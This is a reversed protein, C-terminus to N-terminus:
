EEYRGGLHTALFKEARAYFDLRNEPRAFGHGEDEYEVYEVIKGKKKLSEVIQLSEAKKVRPDNAGQAILLPKEIREAHYLPSRSKLFESEKEPHGVRAYMIPVWPKWYPPITSLLTVLNSPGVLNVGCAFLDPTFALGALTAYGGYSGGFIAVRKADAVGKKVAWQVADTLDNQMKAGWERDGANIFSKGYGTSGRFNVQLVAYGRNALWQVEGSYGWVDRAWPGGHVLLVMPLKEAKVGPPTTLYGHIRLGDRAEYRIPEMQALKVGELARRSTFLFRAKKGAREYAYYYAPGDDALFVVLWTRDERDRNIIRFDGRHIKRLAEFDQAITPDLIKWELREKQFAVAQVVHRAPHVLVQDVDASADAALSEDRKGSLDIERLRSTNSGASSLVYLGENDPTFAIPESTLSDEFDWMLRTRWKQGGPDRVLLLSRGDELTKVAARVRLRHDANWGLFGDTNRAELALKGNKLNLRYVDHHAPDRDNLAILIEDPYNPEVAVFQAQVGKIPTLDRVELTDLDLGYIHWNEDGDRDQVYLIQRNNPAWTYWRIGRGRDRTLPRDDDGRLTRMWVNLVGEDPALYALRKGDPSIKPTSRDPNGFLDDRPIIPPMEASVATMSSLLVCATAVCVIVRTM